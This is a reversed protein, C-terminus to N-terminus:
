PIVDKDPVPFKTQPGPHITGIGECTWPLHREGNHDNCRARHSCDLGHERIPTACAQCRGIDVLRKRRQEPTKYKCEEINHKLPFCLTCTPIWSYSNFPGSGRGRGRGRGRGGQHTHQNNVGNHINQSPNHPTPHSHVHNNDDKIPQNPPSCNLQVSYMSATIPRPKNELLSMTKSFQKEFLAKSFKFDECHVELKEVLPIRVKEPLNDLAINFFIHEPQLAAREVSDVADRVADIYRIVSEDDNTPLPISFFKRAAQQTRAWPVCYREKLKEWTQEYTLNAMGSVGVYDKARDILSERLKILLGAKSLGSNNALEKWNTEWIDFDIVGNFEPFNSATTKVLRVGNNFAPQALALMEKATEECMVKYEILDMRVNESPTIYAYIDISKGKYTLVEKEQKALRVDWTNLRSQTARLSASKSSPNDCLIKAKAIDVEAGKILEFLKDCYKQGQEEDVVMKDLYSTGSESDFSDTESRDLSTRLYSQVTISGGPLNEKARIPSISGGTTPVVLERAVRTSDKTETKQLSEFLAKSKKVSNSEVCAQRDPSNVPTVLPTSTVVKDKSEAVSVLEEKVDSLDISEQPGSKDTFGSFNAASNGSNKKPKSNKNRKSM